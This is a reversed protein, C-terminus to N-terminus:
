RGAQRKFALYVAYAAGAIVVLSGIIGLLVLAIMSPRRVPPDPDITLPLQQDVGSEVITSETVLFSAISATVFGLTGIAIIRLLLAIIRGEITTPDTSTNITTGLALAWWLADLFTPYNSDPLRHEFFYVGAAALLISVGLLALVYALRERRFLEGAEKVAHHGILVIWILWAPRALNAIRAVQIVRVFPLIVAALDLVHSEVFQLKNPALLLRALFVLGFIAWIALDLGLLLDRYPPPLELTLQAVLVATWVFALATLLHDLQHFAEGNGRSSPQRRADDHTASSQNQSPAASLVRPDRARRYM